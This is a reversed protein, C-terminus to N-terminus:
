WNISNIYKEWAADFVDDTVMGTHGGHEGSHEIKMYTYEHRVGNVYRVLKDGPIIEDVSACHRLLLTTRAAIEDRVLLKMIARNDCRSITRCYVLIARLENEIEAHTM